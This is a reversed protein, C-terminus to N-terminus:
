KKYTPHTKRLDSYASNFQLAERYINPECFMVFYIRRCLINQKLLDGMTYTEITELKITTEM